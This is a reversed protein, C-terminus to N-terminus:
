ESRFFIPASSCMLRTLFGSSATTEFASFDLNILGPEIWLASLEALFQHAPRGGPVDVM